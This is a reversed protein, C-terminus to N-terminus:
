TCRKTIFRRFSILYDVWEDLISQFFFILKSITSKGSAQPGVLITVDTIEEEFLEVPGFHEIRIRPM